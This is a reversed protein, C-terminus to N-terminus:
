GSIHGHKASRDASRTTKRHGQEDQREKPRTPGPVDIGVIRIAGDRERVIMRGVVFPEDGRLGDGRDRVARNAVPKLTEAGVTRALRASVERGFNAARARGDGHDRDSGGISEVKGRASRRFRGAEGLGNPDNSVNPDNQANSREPRECREVCM